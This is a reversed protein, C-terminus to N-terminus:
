DETRAEDEGRDGIIEFAREFIADIEPRLDAARFNGAFEAMTDVVCGQVFDFLGDQVARVQNLNEPVSVIGAGIANLIRQNVARAIFKGVINRVLEPTPRELDAPQDQMVENVAELYAERAHADDLDGDPPCVHDVLAAYIDQVPRDALTGFNLTRVIERIGGSAVSARSLVNGLAAAASREAAMRRAATAPGGGTRSVFASAARGLARRDDGGSKTYKTFNSRPGTYRKPPRQLGPPVGPVVPARNPDRDPTNAPGPDPRQVGDNPLAPEDGEPDAPDRDGDQPAQPIWRPILPDDNRGGPFPNSTGM